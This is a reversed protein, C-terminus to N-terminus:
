IMLHEKEEGDKQYLKIKTENLWIIKESGHLSKERKQCDLRVKKNASHLLHNADQNCVKVIM